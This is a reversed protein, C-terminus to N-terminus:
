KRREGVEFVRQLRGAAADGYNIRRLLELHELREEVSRSQWYKEDSRHDLPVVSFHERSVRPIKM